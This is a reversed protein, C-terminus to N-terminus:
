AHRWTEGNLIRRVTWRSVKFRAAIQGPPMGNVALRRIEPIDSETLRAIARKSGREYRHMSSPETGFCLKHLQAATFVKQRGNRWLVYCRQQHHQYSKLPRDGRRLLGDVTFTYQPFGPVATPSNQGGSPRKKANPPGVSANQDTSSAPIGGSTPIM